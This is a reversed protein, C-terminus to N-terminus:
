VYYKELTLYVEGIFVDIDEDDLHRIEVLEVWLDTYYDRCFGELNEVDWTDKPVGLLDLTVDHLDDGYFTYLNLGLDLAGITTDQQEKSRRILAHVADHILQDQTLRHKTPKLTM